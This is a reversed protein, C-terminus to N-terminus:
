LKQQKSPGTAVNFSPYGKEKWEYFSMGNAAKPMRVMLPVEIDTETGLLEAKHVVKEKLREYGLKEYLGVSSPSAEGYLPLNTYDCFSLGWAAM